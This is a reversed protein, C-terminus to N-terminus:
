AIVEIVGMMGKDEHDVAHCHYVFRGVIEPDTFPIVVKLVGPGQDTAPPVSFTDRLSDDHWSVGGVETVLFPTQHIHFSHYQQDTNVVTWEETDGLRATQDNRSEDIVRGDIMFTKRDDTRSYLLTRRRAIPAARVDEIWQPGNVRQRLIEDELGTGRPVGSSSIVALQRVLGAPRWSENQFSITRMAYEGPPPGVAIADIRQGPGLFFETMKSPRSLAHGDTAVVYLAMGEIRFKYFDSAGIHAIRWFQMEGPSMAVVPNIQGNISVIESEDDLKVHKILFFREPLGHLLPYLDEIGDIVLAGSLGALIQDNVFGHAHPHYWFVGPGQRGSAPIRVQYQLTEGPKVHVFVNDSNGQPSVSMGHFHLNSPTGAGSCVPGLYGPRDLGLALNNRFTIRLTDGLRARLMPPVYAGNYVLGTFARDGLQVQGPAAAITTDLLGNVSSTEPPQILPVPTPTTPQSRARSSLVSPGLTLLSGTVAATGVFRSATKIFLRRNLTSSELM